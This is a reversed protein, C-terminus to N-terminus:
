TFGSFIIRFTSLPDIKQLSRDLINIKGNRKRINLMLTPRQSSVVSGVSCNSVLDLKGTLSHYFQDNRTGSTMPESNTDPLPTDNSDSVTFISNDGQYEFRIMLSQM